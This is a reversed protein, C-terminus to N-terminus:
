IRAHKVALLDSWGYGVPSWIGAKVMSGAWVVRTEEKPPKGVRAMSEGLRDGEGRGADFFR